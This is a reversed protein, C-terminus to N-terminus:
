YHVLSHRLPPILLITLYYRNVYKVGREKEEKAKGSPVTVLTPFHYNFVSIPLLLSLLYLLSAIIKWIRKEDVRKNFLWLEVM